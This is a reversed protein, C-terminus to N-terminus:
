EIAAPLRGDTRTKPVSVGVKGRCVGEEMAARRLGPALDGRRALRLSAAKTLAIM